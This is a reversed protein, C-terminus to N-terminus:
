QALANDEAVRAAALCRYVLLGLPPVAILFEYDARPIAVAGLGVGLAVFFAALVRWGTPSLLSRYRNPRNFLLRYGVTSCFAAVIGFCIVMVVAPSRLALARQFELQREIIWAALIALLIGFALLIGGAFRAVLLHPQNM